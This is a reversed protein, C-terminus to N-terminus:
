APGRRGDRDSEAARRDFGESEVVGVAGWAAWRIVVAELLGSGRLHCGSGWRWGRVLVARMVGDEALEPRGRRQAGPPGGALSAGGPSPREAVVAAGRGGTPRARALRLPCRGKPQVGLV